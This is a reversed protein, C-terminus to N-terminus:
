DTNNLTPARYIPFFNPDKNVTKKNFQAYIDSNLILRFQYCSKSLPSLSKKFSFLSPHGGGIHLHHIDEMECATKIMCDFGFNNPRLLSYQLDSHCLFAYIVPPDILYCHIGCTNKQQDTISFIYLNEKIEEFFSEPFFFYNDAKLDHMRQHYLSVFSEICPTKNISLECKEARSINKRACSAYNKRIDNYPKTTDIWVHEHHYAPKFLSLNKFISSDLWPNIRIFASIYNRKQAEILFEQEFAIALESKREPSMDSFWIGGFEYASCLDFHSPLYEIKRVLYPFALVDNDIKFVALEPHSDPEIHSAALLWEQSVYLKPAMLVDSISQWESGPSLFSLSYKNM